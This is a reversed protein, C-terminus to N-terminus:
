TNFSVSNMQVFPRADSGQIETIPAPASPLGSELTARSRFATRSPPSAPLRAPPRAPLRALFLQLPPKRDADPAARGSPFTPRHTPGSLDDRPMSRSHKGLADRAPTQPRSAGSFPTPAPGVRDSDPPTRHCPAQTPGGPLLLRGPPSKSAASSVSRNSRRGARQAASRETDHFLRGFRKAVIHGHGSGQGIGRHIADV